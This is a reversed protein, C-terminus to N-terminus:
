FKQVKEWIGTEEFDAVAKKAEESLNEPYGTMELLRIANRTTVRGKKLLYNFVVEHEKVEEEFHYNEYLDELIYSLEIDHTAAFPLVHERDLGALIRSSAGIREITNTGRLVEDIICLLCGEKETEDLIRKLSRIEVIFYSEGRELDDRLAMSTMVKFYPAQYESATVTYITQALITNVAINKLFTSKGSANSGTVLIGNEAEISNAVPHSLLPHYLNEVKLYAKGAMELEPISYYPLSVRFSAISIMADLYGFIKMLGLIEEQHEQMAKMMTSFKILDIHTLMRIYDMILGEMGGGTSSQELVLFSGKQFTRLEKRCRKGEEMYSALEPIKLKELNKQAELLQIVCRFSTLYLDIDQKRMFYTIINLICIGLFCFIGPSPMAAFFLLSLFFAGCMVIQFGKGQIEVEKTVSVAEYVSVNGPKRIGALLAQVKHREMEKESFFELLRQREKLEEEEFVPKRLIEYLYEDGIPSISQNILAFIRDMDLDNWTIDDVYFGEKERKRFFQSIHELEDYSYERQPIKGWSAMMRELFLKRRKGKEYYNLVGAGALFLLIVVLGIVTDNYM